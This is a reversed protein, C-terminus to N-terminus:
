RPPGQRLLKKLFYLVLTMREYPGDAYFPSVGHWDAGGDFLLVDGPMMNIAIKWQPLVLYGGRYGSDRWCTMVSWSCALNDDHRHCPFRCDM